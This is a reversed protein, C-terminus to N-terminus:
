RKLESKIPALNNDTTSEVNQVKKDFDAWISDNTDAHITVTDNSNSPQINCNNQHYENILNHKAMRVCEKSDFAVDKYRPDLITSIAYTPHAEINKFRYNMEFLLNARLIQVDASVNEGNNIAGEICHIIPIVKSITMYSEGSLETTAQHFPKLINTINRITEWEEFTLHQLSNRNLEAVAAPLVVRLELFRILMTYTSNWRTTEDRKLSLVKPSCQRIQQNSLVESADNSSKFFRTIRQCKKIVDCIDGSNKLASRVVLNITHGFSPLHQWPTKRIAAVVDSGNDSVISHIKSIIEWTRATEILVEHLNDSTHRMPFYSVQLTDAELSETGFFHVTTGFFSMQRHVDTWLDVTLHVRQTALLKGQIEKCKESYIEPLYKGVITKRDPIKYKENLSKVFGIFGADSVISLPRVDEAIMKILFYTIEKFRKSDAPYKQVNDNNRATNQRTGSGSSTFATIVNKEDSSNNLINKHFRRLHSWMNSTNKSHQITASCVNCKVVETDDETCNSFHMWVASRKARVKPMNFLIAAGIYYCCM